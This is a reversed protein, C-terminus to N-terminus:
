RHARFVFTQGEVVAVGDIHRDDVADAEVAAHYIALSLHDGIQRGVPHGHVYYADLGPIGVRCWYVGDIAGDDGVDLDMEGYCSEGGVYAMQWAGALASSEVGIPEGGCNVCLAVIALVVYKM